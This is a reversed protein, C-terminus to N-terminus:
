AIIGNNHSLSEDIRKLRLTQLRSEKRYYVWGLFIILLSILLSITDSLKSSQELNNGGNGGGGGDIYTGNKHVMFDIWTLFFNYLGHFYIGPRLVKWLSLSKESKKNEVERECLRVSQIAASLPHVPLISRVMLLFIQNRFNSEGYVFIYILNECLAFGTGVAVMCVTM